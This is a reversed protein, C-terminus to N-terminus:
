GRDRHVEVVPSTGYEYTVARHYSVPETSDDWEYLTIRLTNLLRGLLVTVAFSARLFLAVHHHGLSLANARIENAICDALAQGAEPALVSQDGLVVVRRHVESRHDALWRDFTSRDGRSSAVDVYVAVTGTGPSIDVADVNLEFPLAAAVDSRWTGFQDTISVPIHRVMPFAVGYGFALSLHAGGVIAVERAGSASLLQPAAAFLGRATRFVDSPPCRAPPDAPRHRVVLGARADSAQPEVRSQVDIALAKVGLRRYEGMRRRAMEVAVSAVGDESAQYQKAKALRRADRGLLRGPAEYELRGGETVIASVVALSFRPQRRHLELLRPLEIERIVGSKGIEPTIVIVAASLGSDFAQEIRTEFDGPLLDDRDRWVPLGCGRLSWAVQHALESGDSQRYSVLVAGDPDFGASAAARRRWWVNLM